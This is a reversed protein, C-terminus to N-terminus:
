IVFCLRRTPEPFHLCYLSWNTM